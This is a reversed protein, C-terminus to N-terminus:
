GRRVAAALQELWTRISASLMARAAAPDAEVPPGAWSEETVVRTGDGDPEFTWVHRGEIGAAPGGWVTRREPEVALVTSDISLGGTEWHFVAGTTFPGDLRAVPVDDRWRTWGGVDTHLRWVVDVPADVRIEDRVIVPADRDIDPPGSM